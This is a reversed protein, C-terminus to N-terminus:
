LDWRKEEQTVLHRYDIFPFERCPIWESENKTIDTLPYVKRCVMDGDWIWRHIYLPYGGTTEGTDIDGFIINDMVINAASDFLDREPEKQMFDVYNQKWTKLLRNYSVLIGDIVAEVGYLTTLAVISNREYSNRDAKLADLRLELIEVLYDGELCNPMFLVKNYDVVMDSMSECIYKATQQVFPKNAAFPSMELWELKNNKFIKKNKM